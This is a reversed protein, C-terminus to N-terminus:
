IEYCLDKLSKYNLSSSQCKELMNIIQPLDASESFILDDMGCCSNLYHFIYEKHEHEYIVQYYSSCNEILQAINKTDNIYLNPRSQVTFERLNQKDDFNQQCKDCIYKGDSFSFYKENCRCIDYVDTLNAINVSDDGVFPQRNLHNFCRRWFLQECEHCKYQYTAYEPCEFENKLAKNIHTRMPKYKIVHKHGNLTPVIRTCLKKKNEYSNEIRNEYHDFIYYSQVIEIYNNELVNIKILKATTWNNFFKIIDYKHNKPNNIITKLYEVNIEM